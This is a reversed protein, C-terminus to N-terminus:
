WVTYGGEVPLNQGTVYASLDSALFAVAGKIDEERAMREMPTRQLYREHFEEPQERWVGGMSIMNVRIEPALTTALWKTMQLLGGKSASYGAPNGMEGDDPYLRMDPGVMNYISGVSFVSGIPSERLSKVCKQTLFVPATLNVELADRWAEPLQEEFPVSWGDLESTGVLAASHALVDISGFSELVRERIRDYAGEEAIDEALALTDTEYERELREAEQQAETEEFDVVAVAAGLEALTEGIAAGLHGAGGTVIATRGSLDALESLSEM